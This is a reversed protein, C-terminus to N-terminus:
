RAAKARAPKAKVAEKVKELRAKVVEPPKVAPAGTPRVAARTDDLPLEGQDAQSPMARLIAKGARVFRRNGANPTVRQVAVQRPRYISTM